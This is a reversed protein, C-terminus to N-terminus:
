RRTLPIRWSLSVRHRNADHRLISEMLVTLNQSGVPFSVGGSYQQTWLISQTSGGLFDFVQFPARGLAFGAQYRIRRCAIETNSSVMSAAINGGASFHYGVSTTLMAVPSYAGTVKFINGRSAGIQIYQDELGVLFRAGLSQAVGGRLIRYPFSDKSERGAGLHLSGEVATRAGFRWSGGGVGYSWRTAGLRYSHLGFLLNASASIPQLLEINGGLGAGVTAMTEARAGWFLIPSSKEQACLVSKGILLFLIPVLVRKM